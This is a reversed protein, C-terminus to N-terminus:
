FIGSFYVASNFKVIENILVSYINLYGKVHLWRILLQEIPNWDSNEGVEKM